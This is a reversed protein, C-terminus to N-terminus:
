SSEGTRDRLRVRYKWSTVFLMLSIGGILILTVSEPEPVLIENLIMPNTSPNYIQGASLGIVQNGTESSAVALVSSGFSSVGFYAANNGFFAGGYIGWNQLENLVTSWSNGLNASWGVLIVAQTAGVPWNAVQITAGSNMQALRGNSLPSNTAGLGTDSWLVFDSLTVPTGVAATSTLLEFYYGQYGLAANNAATNLVTPGRTGVPNAVGISNTECILFISSGSWNIYGQTFAVM